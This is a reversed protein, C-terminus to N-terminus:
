IKKIYMKYKRIDSNIQTIIEKLYKQNGGSNSKQELEIIKQQDRSTKVLEYIKYGLNIIKDLVIKKNLDIMIKYLDDCSYENLFNSIKITGAINNFLVSVLKVINKQDNNYEGYLYINRIAYSENWM